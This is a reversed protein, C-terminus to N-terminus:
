KSTRRSKGKNLKKGARTKSPNKRAERQKQGPRERFFLRMPVKFDFTERLQNTIYRQYSEPIANPLNSNFMFAPPATGVQAAYYLRIPKGAIVPASHNDTMYQLFKNLRPTPAKYHYQRHLELAVELVKTVKRGHLASTFIVPAYSIFKLERKLADRWEQEEGPGKKVTDWKNVIVILARHKEECIGAIRLDQLVAPESADLVLVAVEAREVQKLAAIVSYEEVRHVVSRKRRIGATDTLIFHRGEFQLASDIPDITTGPIPSAVLRKKNLLANILTSKGANPRGVIAMRIPMQDAPIEPEEKRPEPKPFKDVLAEVLDLVGRGHEASIGFVQDFGLRFFEPLLSSEEQRDSDLKNAVLLVSKGSKRLLRAVAEDGSTLGGRADVVFLIHDAEEVALTAQQQVEEQLVDKDGPIFGGTDILTFSYDGWETEAYHRDRTVGAVDEVIALKRRALRNFLTSKGVNPRGVIAVLSKM